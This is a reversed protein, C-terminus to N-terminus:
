LISLFFDYAGWPSGTVGMPYYHDEAFSTTSSLWDLGVVYTKYDSLAADPFNALLLISANDDLNLHMHADDTGDGQGHDPSHIVAASDPETKGLKFAKLELDATLAREGVPTFGIKVQCDKVTKLFIVNQNILLYIRM